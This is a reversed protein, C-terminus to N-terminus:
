KSWWFNRETYSKHIFDHHYKERAYPSHNALPNCIKQRSILRARLLLIATLHGSNIPRTIVLITCTCSNIVCKMGFYRYKASVCSFLLRRQILNLGSSKHIRYLNLLILESNVLSLCSILSWFTRIKKFIAKNINISSINYTIRTRIM